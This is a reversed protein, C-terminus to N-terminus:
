TGTCVSISTNWSSCALRARCFSLCLWIFPAATSRTAVQGQWVREKRQVMAPQADGSRRDSAESHGLICGGDLWLGVNVGDELLAATKRRWNFKGALRM